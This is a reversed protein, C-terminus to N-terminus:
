PLGGGSIGGPWIAGIGGYAGQIFGRYVVVVTHWWGVYYYPDAVSNLEKLEKL